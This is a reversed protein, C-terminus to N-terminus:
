NSASIICKKLLASWFATAWRLILKIVQSLFENYSAFRWCCAQIRGKPELGWRSDVFKRFHNEVVKKKSIYHILDEVTLLRCSLPRSILSNSCANWLRTPRAQGADARHINVRITCFSSGKQLCIKPLSAAAKPKNRWNTLMILM